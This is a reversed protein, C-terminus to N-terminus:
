NLERMVNYRINYKNDYLYIEKPVLVINISTPERYRNICRQAEKSELLSKFFEESCYHKSYVLNDIGRDSIYSDKSIDLLTEKEDQL